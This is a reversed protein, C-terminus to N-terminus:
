DLVLEEVFITRKLKVLEDIDRSLQRPREAYTRDRCRTVVKLLFDLVDATRVQDQCMDGVEGFPWVQELSERLKSVDRVLQDEVIRSGRVNGTINLLFLSLSVALFYFDTIRDIATHVPSYSDLDIGKLQGRRSLMLNGNKLDNIAYNLKHIEEIWLLVSTLLDLVQSLAPAQLFSHVMRRRRWSEGASRRVAELYQAQVDSASQWPSIPRHVSSHEEGAIGLLNDLTDGDVLQLVHFTYKKKRLKGADYIRIVHPASALDRGIQMVVDAQQIM